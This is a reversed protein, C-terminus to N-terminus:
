KQLSLLPGEEGDEGHCLKTQTTQLLERVTSITAQASITCGPVLNAVM